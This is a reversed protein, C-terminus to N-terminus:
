DDSNIWTGYLYGPVFCGIVLWVVYVVTKGIKKM